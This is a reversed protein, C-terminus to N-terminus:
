SSCRETTIFVAWPPLHGVSQGPQGIDVAGDSEPRRHLDSQRTGRLLQLARDGGSWDNRLCNGGRLRRAGFTAGYLNGKSDRVLGAGPHAGDSGAGTFSHLTTLTQAYASGVAFIALPMAIALTLGAGATGLRMGHISNM